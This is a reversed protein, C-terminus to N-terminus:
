VRFSLGVIYANNFMMYFLCIFFFTVKHWRKVSIFNPLQSFLYCLPILGVSFTRGAITQDPLDVCYFFLSGLSAWFVIVYMMRNFTFVSLSAFDKLYYLVIFAFLFRISIQYAYIIQWWLSGGANAGETRLLYDNGPIAGLSQFLELFYNELLYQVGVLLGVFLIGLLFFQKKNLRLPLFYLLALPLAIYSLKHFLFSCALLIVGLLYKKHALLTFALLYVAIFLYLRGVIFSYLVLIAFLLLFLIPNSLRCGKTFMLYIAIFSPVYVCAQYLYFDKGIQRILWIYFKEVHVFPDKTSAIEDLIEVYNGYDPSIANGFVALIIFAIIFCGIFLNKQTFVVRKSVLLMLIACLLDYLIWGFYFHLNVSM